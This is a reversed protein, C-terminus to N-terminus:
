SGPFNLIMLLLDHFASEIGDRKGTGLRHFIYKNTKNNKLYAEILAGPLSKGSIGDNVDVLAIGIEIDCKKVLRINNKKLLTIFTSIFKSKYRRTRKTTKFVKVSVESSTGTFGQDYIYGLIDNGYLKKYIKYNFFKGITYPKLGPDASKELFPGRIIVDKVFQIKQENTMSNFREMNYEDEKSIGHTTAVILIWLILIIEKKMEIEENKIKVLCAKERLKAM